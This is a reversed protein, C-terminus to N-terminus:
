YKIVKNGIAVEQEPKGRVIQMAQHLNEHKMADVLKAMDDYKGEAAFKAM